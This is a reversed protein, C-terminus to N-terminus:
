YFFFIHSYSSMAYKQYQMLNFNHINIGSKSPRMTKNHAPLAYINKATNNYLMTYLALHTDIHRLRHTSTYYGVIRLGILFWIIFYGHCIKHNTCGEGYPQLNSILGSKICSMYKAFNHRVVIKPNLGDLFNDLCSMGDSLIWIFSLPLWRKNISTVM